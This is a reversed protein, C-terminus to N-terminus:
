DAPRDLEPPVGTPPAPLAQVTDEVPDAPTATSGAGNQQEVEVVPLSPLVPLRVEFDAYIIRRPNVGDSLAAIEAEEKRNYVDSKLARLMTRERGHDYERVIQVEDGVKVPREVGNLARDYVAGELEDGMLLRIRNFARKYQPYLELWRRHTEYSVDVARCAAMIRGRQQYATLFQEMRSNIHDAGEQAAHGRSDLIQDPRIAKLTVIPTVQKESNDM